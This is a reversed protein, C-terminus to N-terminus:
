LTKLSGMGVVAWLADYLKYRMWDESHGENIASLKVTCYTRVVVCLGDSLM